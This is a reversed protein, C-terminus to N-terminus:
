QRRCKLNKEAVPSPLPPSKKAWVMSFLTLIIQNIGFKTCSIIPMFGYFSFFKLYIATRNKSIHRWLSWGELFPILQWKGNIVGLFRTEQYLIFIQHDHITERVGFQVGRFIKVMKFLCLFTGLAKKWSRKNWLHKCCGGQWILKGSM